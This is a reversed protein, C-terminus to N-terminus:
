RYFNQSQARLLGRELREWPSKQLLLLCHWVNEPDVDPYRLLIGEQIKRLRRIKVLAPNEEEVLASPLVQLTQALAHLSRPLLSEQRILHYYATKSVGSRALLTGLDMGKNKSLKKIKEAQLRV